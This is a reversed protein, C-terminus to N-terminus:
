EDHSSTNPTLAPQYLTLPAKRSVPKELKANCQVCQVAHAPNSHTCNWCIVTGNQPAAQPLAIEPLKFNCHGCRALGPQATHGCNPCHM